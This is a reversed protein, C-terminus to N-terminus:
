SAKRYENPAEEVLQLRSRDTETWWVAQQARAWRMFSDFRGTRLQARLFMTHAANEEVWYKSNGKLRLNIVRRIVSEIAGSGEPLNLARAQDYRLREANRTFFDRRSVDHDDAAKESPVELEGLQEILADIKGAHLHALARKRWSIRRHKSWNTSLTSLTWIGSEVHYWDICERIKEHAVGLELLTPRARNWIWDAGDGVVSVSAANCINIAMLTKSLVDFLEDAPCEFEDSEGIIGDVIPRPEQLMKGDDDVAYIIFLKPEKWPADFGHYGSKRPRGPYDERLRTRGGDPCIVINLGNWADQDFRSAGLGDELWTRHQEFRAAGINHFRNLFGTWSMHYGHREITEQGVRFADASLGALLIEEELLPTLRRHSDIGLVELAPYVGRGTRGRNGHRKKSGRRREVRELLYTVKLVVESGGPLTVAVDVLGKNEWSGPNTDRFAEVALADLNTRALHFQLFVEFAADARALAADRAQQQVERVQEPSVEELSPSAFVDRFDDLGCWALAEDLTAIEPSNEWGQTLPM